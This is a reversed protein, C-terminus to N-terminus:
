MKGMFVCGRTPTQTLRIPVTGVTWCIYVIPARDASSRRTIVFMLHLAAFTEGDFTYFCIPRALRSPASRKGDPAPAKVKSPM